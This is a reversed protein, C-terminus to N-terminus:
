TFGHNELSYDSALEKAEKTAPTLFELYKSMGM